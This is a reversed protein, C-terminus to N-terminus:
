NWFDVPSHKGGSGVVCLLTPWRPQSVVHTHTQWGGGFAEHVSRDGYGTQCESSINPLILLQSWLLRWKGYYKCCGTLESSILRNRDTCEVSWFCCIFCIVESGVQIFVVKSQMPAKHLVLVFEERVTVPGTTKAGKGEERWRTKSSKNVPFAANETWLSFGNWKAHLPDM